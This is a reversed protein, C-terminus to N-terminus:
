SRFLAAARCSEVPYAGIATEDSLVVGHYGRVLTEYLYCVESRTPTPQGTMHELVQGALLTPVSFTQVQRSFNLVAGAMGQLGMEAGLDGRCLWLENATASIGASDEIAAARELKAVLYAASGLLSRYSSMERADKVYSLAYRLLPLGRTREVIHRDKDSLAEQRHTSSTFTIGKHSSLDGGLTVRARLWDSGTTELVLRVKADNLVLEGSSTPAARFLDPHPVPLVGGQDTRSGQVLEVIEGEKLTFSNFQGLRWKSGQLDLVLPVGETQQVLFPCLHELWADLQDLSLHSTNLRFATAGASLLSQWTVESQSSPGLTATIHYNM